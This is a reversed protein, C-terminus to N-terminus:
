NRIWSTSHERSTRKSCSAGRPLDGDTVAWRAARTADLSGAATLNVAQERALLTISGNLRASGEDARVQLNDLHLARGDFTANGALESIHTIQTETNFQGNGGLKVYGDGPTLRLAISPM